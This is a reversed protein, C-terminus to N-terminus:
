RSSEYFMGLEIYREATPLQFSPPETVTSLSADPASSAEPAQNQALSSDSGHSLYLGQAPLVSFVPLCSAPTHTYVPSPGLFHPISAPLFAADLSSDNPRQAHSSPIQSPTSGTYTLPVLVPALPYNVNPLHTPHIQYFMDVSSSYPMPFAVLQLPTTPSSDNEQHQAELLNDHKSILVYNPITADEEPRQRNASSGAAQPHTNM